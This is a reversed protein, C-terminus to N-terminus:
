MFFFHLLLFVMAKCTAHVLGQAHEIKLLQFTYYMIKHHTLQLLHWSNGHQSDQSLWNFADAQASFTGLMASPHPLSGPQASMAKGQEELKEKSAKLRQKEDCLENKEAQM